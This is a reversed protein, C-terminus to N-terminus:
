GALRARSRTSAASITPPPTTRGAGTTGRSTRSGGAVAPVSRARVTEHERQRDATKPPHHRFREILGATDM